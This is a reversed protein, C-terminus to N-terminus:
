ILRHRFCSMISEHLPTRTHAKLCSKAAFSKNCVLCNHNKTKKHLNGKLKATYQKKSDRANVSIQRELTTGVWPQVYLNLAEAKTLTLSEVNQVVCAAKKIETEGKNFTGKNIDCDFQHYTENKNNVWKDYKELDNPMWKDLMDGDIDGKQECVLLKMEKTPLNNNGKQLKNDDSRDENGKTVFANMWRVKLKNRNNLIVKSHTGRLFLVEEM